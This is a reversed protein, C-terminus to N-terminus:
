LNLVIIMLTQYSAFLLWGWYPLLLVSSLPKLFFGLTVLSTVAGILACNITFAVTHDLNFFVFPWLLSLTFQIGWLWIAAMRINSETKSLPRYRLILYLSIGMLAYLVTWAVGYVWDPLAFSPMNLGEYGRFSGSLYGVLTGAAVPLLM